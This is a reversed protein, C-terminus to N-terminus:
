MGKPFGSETKSSSGKKAARTTKVVPIDVEEEEFIEEIRATRTKVDGAPSTGSDDDSDEDDDLSAMVELLRAKFSKKQQPKGKGKNNDAGAPRSASTGSGSSSAQPQPRKNANEPKSYCDATNHTKSAGKKGLGSCIQCFKAAKTTTTTNVEKSKEKSPKDNGTSSDKDKGFIRTGTNARNTNKYLTLLKDLYEDWKAPMTSVSEIIGVSTALSSPIVERLKDILVDDKYEM